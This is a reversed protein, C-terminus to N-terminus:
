RAPHISFRRRLKTSAYWKEHKGGPLFHPEIKELFHKLGM